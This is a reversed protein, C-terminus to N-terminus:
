SAAAERHAPRGPLRPRRGQRRPGGHRRRGAHGPQRRHGPRGGERASPDHPRLAAVLRDRGPQAAAPRQAARLAQSKADAGHAWDAFDAATADGGHPPSDVAQLAQALPTKAPRSPASASRTARRRLVRPRAAPAPRRRRRRGEQRGDGHVVALNAVAVSKGEGQICSTVVCRACRRRRREHVRPQHPDHPLGRRRSGRPPAADRARERRAAAQLHAPHPRPDAPAPHAAVEDQRACARTSSSSCSPSASAPSSASASASSPAACRVRSSRPAPSAAGAGPRPLQRHGHRAPDHPGAPAAPAILYDASQQAAGPSENM